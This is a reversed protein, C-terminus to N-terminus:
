GRFRDLVRVRVNLRVWYSFSVRDRVRVMVRM